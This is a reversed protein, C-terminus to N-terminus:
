NGTAPTVWGLSAVAKRCSPRNLNVAYGVILTILEMKQKQGFGLKPM